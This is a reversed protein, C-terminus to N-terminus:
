YHLHLLAASYSLGLTVLDGRMGQPDSSWASVYITYTLFGAAAFQFPPINLQQHSFSVPFGRNSMSGVEVHLLSPAAAGLLSRPIGTWLGVGMNMLFLEAMQPVVRNLLWRPSREGFVPIECREM